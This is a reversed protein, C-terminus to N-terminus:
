PTDDRLVIRITMEARHCLMDGFMTVSSSLTQVPYSRHVTSAIGLQDLWRFKERVDDVLKQFLYESPYTEDDHFGLVLVIGWTEDIEVATLVEAEDRGGIGTDLESASLRTFWAVSVLKTAADDPHTITYRSLFTAWDTSHKPQEFVRGIGVIGRLKDGIQTRISEYASM